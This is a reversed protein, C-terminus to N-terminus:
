IEAVLILITVVEPSFPLYAMLVVLFSGTWSTDLGVTLRQSSMQGAFLGM